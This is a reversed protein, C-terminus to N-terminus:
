KKPVKLIIKQTSIVNEYFLAASEAQEKNSYLYSSNGNTYINVWFDKDEFQIAKEVLELKSSSVDLGIEGVRLTVGDGLTYLFDVTWIDQMGKIRVKDGKQFQYKEEVLEFKNQDYSLKCDELFLQEEECSDIIYNNMHVVEDTTPGIRKVKDGPKFKPM